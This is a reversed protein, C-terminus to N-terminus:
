FDILAAKTFEHATCKVRLQTIFKILIFMCKNLLKKEGGKMIFRYIIANLLFLM